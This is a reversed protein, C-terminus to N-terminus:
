SNFENHSQQIKTEIESFKKCMEKLFPEQFKIIMDDILQHM